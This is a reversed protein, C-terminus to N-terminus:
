RVAAKIVRIVAYLAALPLVIYLTGYIALVILVALIDNM